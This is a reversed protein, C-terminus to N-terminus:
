ISTIFNDEVDLVTATEAAVAVTIWGRQIYNNLEDAPMSPQQPQQRVILDRERVPLVLTAASAVSGNANFPFPLPRAVNGGVADPSIGYGGSQLANLVVAGGPASASTNTLTAVAM